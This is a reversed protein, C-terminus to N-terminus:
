WEGELLKCVGSVLLIGVETLLPYVKHMPIVGESTPWYRGWMVLPLTVGQFLLFCLSMFHIRNGEENDYGILWCRSPWSPDYRITVPIPFQGAQIAQQVPAPQDRIGVQLWGDQWLGNTDQFRCHLFAKKKNVTARGEVIQGATAEAKAGGNAEEITTLVTITLDIGLAVLLSVLVYRGKRVANDPNSPLPYGLLCFRLTFWICWLLVAIDGFWILVAKMPELRYHEVVLWPWHCWISFGLTGFLM